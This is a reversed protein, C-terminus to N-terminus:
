LMGEGIELILMHPCLLLLSFWRARRKQLCSEEMEESSGEIPEVDYKQTQYLPTPPFMKGNAMNMVSIFPLLNVHFFTHRLMMVVLYQIDRYTM